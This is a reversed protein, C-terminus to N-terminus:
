NLLLFESMRNMVFFVNVHIVLYYVIFIQKNIFWFLINMTHNIEGTMTM